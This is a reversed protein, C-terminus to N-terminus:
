NSGLWSIGVNICLGHHQVFQTSLRLRNSSSFTGDGDAFGSAFVHLRRFFRQFLHTTLLRQMRRSEHAAECTTMSLPSAAETEAVMGVCEMGCKELVRTSATNQSDSIARVGKINVHNRAHAILGQATETAFGQGWFARHIVYGITAWGSQSSRPLELRCGGVVLGDSKSTVALELQRPAFAAQLRLISELQKVVQERSYPGWPEYKLADADSQFAYLSDVDDIRYPRLVLRPTSIEM